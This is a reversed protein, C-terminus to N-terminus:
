VFVATSTGTGRSSGAATPPAPAGRLTSGRVGAFFAGGVPVELGHVGMVQRVTTVTTGATQRGNGFMEMCTM